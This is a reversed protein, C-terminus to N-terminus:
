PIHDTCFPFKELICLSIHVESVAYFRSKIVNFSSQTAENSVSGGQALELLLCFDGM